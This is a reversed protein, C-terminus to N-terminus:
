QRRRLWLVSAVLLLALLLLVGAVTAYRLHTSATGSSREPHSDSPGHPLPSTAVRESSSPAPTPIPSATPFSSSNSSANSSVASTGPGSGNTALPSPSPSAPPSSPASNASSRPAAALAAAAAVTFSQSAPAAPAYTSNGGQSADVVCTGAAGFVVTSGSVTCVSASGSSFAVPLGSSASAQVTYNGAGVRAGAPPTSTFTITQSQYAAAVTFSQSAPAAPAYTSNGGQSADVVCTGATVFAVTSGSVTCVAASGPSFAVPLGSSASAQVTYNGAGVRAGAPPTSTFNITQSKGAVVLKIAMSAAPSVGNEASITLTYSGATGAAPIGSLVGTPSLTIGAPLTGATIFIAPQPTGSYILPYSAAAGVTFQGVFGGLISPAVPTVQTSGTEIAGIDCPGTGSAPRSDGLEDLGPCVLAGNSLMTGFPIAGLGASPPRLQVQATVGNGLDINTLSYGATTDTATTFPCGGNPDTLNYGLSSIPSDGPAVACDAPSNGTSYLYLNFAVISAGIYLSPSGMFGPGEYIGPASGASVNEIISSQTITTLQSNNYVGGGAETLAVSIGSPYGPASKLSNNFITSNSVTLTGDTFIGAGYLHYQITTFGSIYRPYISNNAIATNDITMTGDNYIGAGVASYTFTLGAAQGSLAYAYNGVVLDHNLVVNGGINALGGGKSATGGTLELNELTVQQNANVTLVAGHGVAGNSSAGGTLVGYGSTNDYGTITIQTLGAPIVAGGPTTANWTDVTGTINITDGSVAQGLAYPLTLCPAASTTCNGQDVGTSGNVFLTSSQASVPIALTVMSWCAVALASLM